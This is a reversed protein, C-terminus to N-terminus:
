DINFLLMMAFASSYLVFGCCLIFGGIMYARTKKNRREILRAIVEQPEGGLQSTIWKVSLVKSWIWVASTLVVSLGLIVCVQAYLGTEAIRRGSFGTITLVVGALSMLVQARSQLVTLQRELIEVAKLLDRDCLAYIDFAEKDFNSLGDANIMTMEKSAAM